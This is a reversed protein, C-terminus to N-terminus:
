LITSIPAIVYATQGTRVAARQSQSTGAMRGGVEAVEWVSNKEALFGRAESTQMVRARVEILDRAVRDVVINKQLDM